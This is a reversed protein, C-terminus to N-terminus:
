APVAETGHMNIVLGDADASVEVRGGQSLEGFLIADALPKKIYEQIVREMPRAGMLRDYGKDALWRRAKEDVVLVVKKPELQAELKIIFKDVVSSVVDPTLANFQITADLRNRFEPTFTRNIAETADLTHDQITFGLSKRSINEAGANSTMILIINRFDVKRGNTDTLTGHDMVQLLLNFVDPHAKEMEDLLLM